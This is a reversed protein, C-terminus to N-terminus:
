VFEPSVTILYEVGDNAANTIATVSV